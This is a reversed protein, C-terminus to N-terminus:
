QLASVHRQVETDPKHVSSTRIMISAAHQFFKLEVQQRQFICSAKGTITMAESNPSRDYDMRSEPGYEGLSEPGLGIGYARFIRQSDTLNKMNLGHRLKCDMHRAQELKMPDKDLGMDQAAAMNRVPM